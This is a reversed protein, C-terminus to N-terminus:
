RSLIGIANGCQGISTWAHKLSTWIWERICCNRADFDVSVGDFQSHRITKLPHVLLAHHVKGAFLFIVLVTLHQLQNIALRETGFQLYFDNCSFPMSPVNAVKVVAMAVQLKIPIWNPLHSKSANEKWQSKIFNGRRRKRTGIVPAAASHRMEWTARM